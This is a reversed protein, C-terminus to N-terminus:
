VFYTNHSDTHRLRKEKIAELQPLTMRFAKVDKCQHGHVNNEAVFNGNSHVEILYIHRDCKHVPKRGRHLVNTPLWIGTGNQEWDRTKGSIETCVQDAPKNSGPLLMTVACYNLAEESDAKTGAGTFCSHHSDVHFPQDELTAGTVMKQVIVEIAPEDLLKTPRRPARPWANDFTDMPVSMHRKWEELRDANVNKANTEVFAELKENYLKKYNHWHTNTLSHRCLGIASDLLAPHSEFVSTMLATGISECNLQYFTRHDGDATFVDMKQCLDKNEFTSELLPIYYSYWDKDFKTTDIIELDSKDHDECHYGKRKDEEQVDEARGYITRPVYDGQYFCSKIKNEFCYRGFSYSFVRGMDM